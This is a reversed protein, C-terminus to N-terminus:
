MGSIRRQVLGRGCGLELFIGRVRRSICVPVRFEWGKWRKRRRREHVAVAEVWGAACARSASRAARLAGRAFTSWLCRGDDHGPSVWGGRYTCQRRCRSLQVLSLAPQRSSGVLLFCLFSLVRLCPYGAQLVEDIIIYGRQKSSISYAASFM